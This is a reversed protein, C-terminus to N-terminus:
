HPGCACALPATTSAPEHRAVPALTKGPATTPAPLSTRMLPTTWTLEVSAAPAVTGIPQIAAPSGASSKEGSRWSSSHVTWAGSSKGPV